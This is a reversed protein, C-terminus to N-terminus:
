NYGIKDRIAIVEELQSVTILQYGQSKLEPVIIKVAEMSRYYIDHM